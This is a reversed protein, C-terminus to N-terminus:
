IIDYFVFKAVLVQQFIPQMFQDTLSIPRAVDGCVAGLPANQAQSAAYAADVM